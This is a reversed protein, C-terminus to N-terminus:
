RYVFVLVRTTHVCTCTVRSRLYKGEEQKGQSIMYYAMADELDKSLGTDAITIKKPNALREKIWEPSGAFM